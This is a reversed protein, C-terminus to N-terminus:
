NEIIGVVHNDEMIFVKATGKKYTWHEQLAWPQKKNEISKPEGLMFKVTKQLMGIEFRGDYICDKDLQPLDPHAQIYADMEAQSPRIFDRSTCGALLVAGLLLTASITRLKM